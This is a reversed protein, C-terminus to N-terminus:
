YKRIIKKKQLLNILWWYSKGRWKGITDDGYVLDTGDMYVDSVDFSYSGLADLLDKLNYTKMGAGGASMDRMDFTQQSMSGYKLKHENGRAKLGTVLQKHYNTYDGPVAKKAEILLNKLKIMEDVKKKKKKILHPGAPEKGVKGDIGYGCSGEVKFGMRKLKKRSAPTDVVVIEKGSKKHVAKVTKGKKTTTPLDSENAKRLADEVEIQKSLGKQIKEIKKVAGSMNGGMKKAIAIAKLVNSRSENLKIM